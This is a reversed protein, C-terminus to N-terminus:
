VKTPDYEPIYNIKTASSLGQTYIYLDSKYQEYTDVRVITYLLGKYLVKYKDLDVISTLRSDFNVVFLIEEKSQVQQAQFLQTGGLQRIYAWVAAPNINYYKEVPFGWPDEGAVLKVLTIKKDKLKMQKNYTM